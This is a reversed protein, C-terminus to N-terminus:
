KNMRKCVIFARVQSENQGLNFIILPVGAAGLQGAVTSMYLQWAHLNCLACCLPSHPCLLRLRNRLFDVCGNM